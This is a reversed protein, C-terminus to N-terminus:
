RPSPPRSSCGRRPPAASGLAGLSTGNLTFKTVGVLRDPGRGFGQRQVHPGQRQQLGPWGRRKPDIKGDVWVKIWARGGKISVVLNVGKFDVTVARTLSTTKGEPSSATVTIAWRGTTLEFPTSYRATRPSPSRSRPPRM